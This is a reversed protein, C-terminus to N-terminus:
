RVLGGLRGFDHGAQLGLQLFVQLAVARDAQGLRSRSLSPIRSSAPLTPEPRGGLGSPRPAAPPRRASVTAPARPGTVTLPVAEARQGERLQRRVAVAM